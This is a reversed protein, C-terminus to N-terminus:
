GGADTCTLGTSLPPPHKLRAVGAEDRGSNITAMQKTALSALQQLNRGIPDGGSCQANVKGPKAV